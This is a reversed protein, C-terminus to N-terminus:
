ECGCPAYAGGSLRRAAQLLLIHSLFNASTGSPVRRIATSYLAKNPQKKM